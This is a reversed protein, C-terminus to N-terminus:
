VTIAVYMAMGAAGNMVRHGQGKVEPYIHVVNSTLLELQKGKLAPGCVCVWLTVSVM